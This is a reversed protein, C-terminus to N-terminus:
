QQVDCNTIVREGIKAEDFRGADALAESLLFRYKVSSPKIQVMKRLDNIAEELKEM